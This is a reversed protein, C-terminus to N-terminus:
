DVDREWHTLKFRKDMWYAGYGMFAAVFVYLIFLWLDVENGSTREYLVVQALTSVVLAFYFQPQFSEGYWRLGATLPAAVYLVQLLENIVEIAVGPHLILAM